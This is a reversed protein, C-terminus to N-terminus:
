LVKVSERFSRTKFSALSESQLGPPLTVDANFKMFRMNSAHTLEVILTARPFCRGFSFDTEGCTTSKCVKEIIEANALSNELECLTKKVETCFVCACLIDSLAFSIM